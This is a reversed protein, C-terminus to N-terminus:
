SGRRRGAVVHYKGGGHQVVDVGVAVPYEGFHDSNSFARYDGNFVLIGGGVPPVEGAIILLDKLPYAQALNLFRDLLWSIILAVVLIGVFIVLFAAVRAQTLSELYNSLWNGPPRLVVWGRIHRPHHGGAIILADAAKLLERDVTISFYLEKKVAIKEEVWVSQVKVGKIEKGLLQQAVKGNGM